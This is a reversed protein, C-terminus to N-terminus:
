LGETEKILPRLYERKEMDALDAQMITTMEFQDKAPVTARYIYDAVMWLMFLKEPKVDEAPLSILRKVAEGLSPVNDIGTKKATIRLDDFNLDAWDVGGTVAFLSAWYFCQTAELIYPDDHSGDLVGCLEDMEDGFRALLKSRDKKILMNVTGSVKEGKAVMFDRIEEANDHLLKYITFIRRPSAM